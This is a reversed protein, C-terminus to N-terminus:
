SSAAPTPPTTVCPEFSAAAITTIRDGAANLVVKMGISLPGGIVSQLADSSRLIDLGAGRPDAPPTSNPTAVYAAVVSFYDHDAFRASLWTRLQASEGRSGRFGHFQHRRYDCDGYQFDNSLLAMVGDVDHGDYATIFAALIARTGAVSPGPSGTAAAARIREAAARPSLWGPLLGTAATAGDRPRPLPTATASGLRRQTPAHSGSCASLILAAAVAASRRRRSLVHLDM